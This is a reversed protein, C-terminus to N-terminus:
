NAEEKIEPLWKKGNNYPTHIDHNALIHAKADSWDDFEEIGAWNDEWRVKYKDDVNEVECFILEEYMMEKWEQNKALAYTLLGEKVFIIEIKM